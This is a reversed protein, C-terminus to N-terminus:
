QHTEKLRCIGVEEKIKKHNIKQFYGSQKGVNQIKSVMDCSTDNLM